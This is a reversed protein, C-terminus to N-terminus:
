PQANAELPPKNEARALFHAANERLTRLRASIASTSDLKLYAEIDELLDPLNSTRRHIELLLLRAERFDPKRQLVERLSKEAIATRGLGLEAWSFSFQGLLSSPELSLGTKAVTDGEAFNNQQCLVMSLAFYPLAFRGDSTEIAKSFAETADQGLGLTLQARGLEYYAEAFFRYEAIARQFEPVSAAANGSDLLRSGKDFLKRAKEPVSLERVSITYRGAPKTSGAGATASPSGAPGIQVWTQASVLTPALLVASFLALSRSQM